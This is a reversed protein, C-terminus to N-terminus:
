GNLFNNVYCSLTRSKNLNISFTFNYKKSCFASVSVNGAASSAPLDTKGMPMTRMFSRTHESADAFNLVSVSSLGMYYNDAITLALGFEGDMVLYYDWEKLRWPLAVKKKDYRLM